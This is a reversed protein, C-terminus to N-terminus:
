AFFCHAGPSFVILALCFNMKRLRIQFVRLRIELGGIKRRFPM